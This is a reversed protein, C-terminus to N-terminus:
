SGDAAASIDQGPPFPGRVRTKYLVADERDFPLLLVAGSSADVAAAGMGCAEPRVPMTGPPAGVDASAGGLTSFVIRSSTISMGDDTTRASFLGTSAPDWAPSEGEAVVSAEAGQVLWISGYLDPVLLRSGDMWVPLLVPSGLLLTDAGAGSVDAVVLGSELPWAARKGTPSIVAAVDGIGELVIGGESMLCGDAQYWLRESSDWSPRGASSYPGYSALRAGTTDIVVVEDTTPGRGAFAIRGSSFAPESISEYGSHRIEFLVRETGDASVLVLGQGAWTMCLFGYGAPIASMFGGTGPISSPAPAGLALLAILVHPM